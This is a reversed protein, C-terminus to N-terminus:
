VDLKNKKFEKELQKPYTLDDPSELGMTTSGGFSIIRFDSDKSTSFEKDRFGKSNITYEIILDDKLKTKYRGPVIKNLNKDWNIEYNTQYDAKMNLMSFLIGIKKEKLYIVVSSFIELILLPTFILFFNIFIKKLNM